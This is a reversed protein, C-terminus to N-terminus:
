TETELLLKVPVNEVTPSAPRLEPLCSIVVFLGFPVACKVTM